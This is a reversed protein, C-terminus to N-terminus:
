FENPPEELPQEDESGPLAVILVRRGEPIPESEAVRLRLVSYEEEDAEKREARIIDLMAQDAGASRQWSVDLFGQSAPYAYRSMADAATNDKGQSM